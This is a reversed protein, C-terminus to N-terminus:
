AKKDTAKSFSESSKVESKARSQKIKDSAMATADKTISVTSKVANIGTSTGQVLADVGTNSLNIWVNALREVITSSADIVHLSIFAYSVMLITAFSTSGTVMDALGQTETINDAIGTFANVLAQPNDSLILSIFSMLTNKPLLNNFGVLLLSVAISIAVLSLMSHVILTWAQKAYQRSFKFAFAVLFLPTFILIFGLKMMASMIYFGIIFMLLTFLIILIYGIVLVPLNPTTFLSIISIAPLSNLAKPVASAACTMAQGLSIMPAVQRYVTCVICLMGNVSRSDMFQGNTITDSASNMNSCYSCKKETIGLFKIAGTLISDGKGISTSGIESFSIALSATYTIFPSIVIRYFNVIPAHLIAAIILVLIAQNLLSTFFESIRSFGFKGFFILISIAIWMLFIGGLLALAAQNVVSYAAIAMKQISEIVLATIDCPWCDQKKLLNKLVLTIPNCTTKATKQIEGAHEIYKQACKYADEIKSSDSFSVREGSLKKYLDVTKHAKELTQTDYTYNNASGCIETKYNNITQIEQSIYAQDDIDAAWCVTASSILLIISFHSICFLSSKKIIIVYYIYFLTITIVGIGSIIPIVSLWTSIHPVILSLGTIICVLILMQILTKFRM